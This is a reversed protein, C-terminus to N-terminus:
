GRTSRINASHSSAAAAGYTPTAIPALAGYSPVRNSILNPASIGFSPKSKPVDGLPGISANRVRRRRQCSPAEFVFPGM